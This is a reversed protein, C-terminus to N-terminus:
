ELFLYDTFYIDQIQGLSLETNIKAKIEEKIVPETTTLLEKKTHNDFYDSFIAKLVGRKRALEEYFVTDGEPYALWPDLVMPTQDTTVIRIKGLDYYASVSTDAPAALNEAKGKAILVEPENQKKNGIAFITGLFIIAVLAGIIIILVKNLSKNDTM